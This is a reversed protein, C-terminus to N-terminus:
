PEPLHDPCPRDNPYCRRIVDTAPRAALRHDAIALCAEAASSDPHHSSTLLLWLPPSTRWQLWACHILACPAACTAMTRLLARDVPAHILLQRVRTLGAVPRWKLPWQTQCAPGANKKNILIKLCRCKSIRIPSWRSTWCEGFKAYPYNSVCPVVKRNPV